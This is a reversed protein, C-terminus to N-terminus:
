NEEQQVFDVANAPRKRSAVSANILPVASVQSVDVENAILVPLALTSSMSIMEVDLGEKAFGGTEKAMWMSAMTGSTFLYAIRLPRAAVARSETTSAIALMLVFLMSVIRRMAVDIPAVAFRRPSNIKSKMPLFEHPLEQQSLIFTEKRDLTVGLVLANMEYTLSSKEELSGVHM